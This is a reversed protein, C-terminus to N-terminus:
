TRDNSEAMARLAAAAARPDDAHFVSTGAVLVTAGAAYARGVTHLDVGGDVEIDTALGRADITERLEEIKPLVDDIFRQGGFGPHVSMVVVKSCRDLHPIVAAVPTPPNLVLGADLGLDAASDFFPTPDPVAEIHATVGDAGAAALPDLYRVPDTIMLHCDLYLGTAARLSAVVPPGMSINPVFHGDMVDVHILDVVDAVSAVDSGLRAFDAALISPAIRLSDRM